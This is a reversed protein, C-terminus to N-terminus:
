IHILSLPHVTHLRKVLREPDYEGQDLAVFRVMGQLIGSRLSDADGEWGKALMTLAEKDLSDRICM